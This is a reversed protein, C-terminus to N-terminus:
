LAYIYLFTNVICTNNITCSITYFLINIRFPKGNEDNKQCKYSYCWNLSKSHLVQKSNCQSSSTRVCVCVCVCVCVTPHRFGLTIWHQSHKYKVANILMSLNNNRKSQICLCTSQPSSNGSNQDSYTTSGLLYLKNCVTTKSSINAPQIMRHICQYKKKIKQILKRSSHQQLVRAHYTV